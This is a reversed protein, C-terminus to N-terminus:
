SNAGTPRALITGAIGTVTGVVCLGTTFKAGAQVVSANLSRAAQSTGTAAANRLLISGAASDSEPIWGGFTMPVGGGLLVETTGVAGAAGLTSGTSAARPNFRYETWEPNAQSHANSSARDREGALVGINLEGSANPVLKLYIGTASVGVEEGGIVISDAM